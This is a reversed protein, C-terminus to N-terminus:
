NTKQKEGGIQELYPLVPKERPPADVKFPALADLTVVWPSVTTAFSKGLFPGLPQYEWKQIDRASWDNVLVMGFVHDEVQGTTVPQGPENARGVFFGMELEFDLLRSPGFSPMDADDTKTQGCPRHIDVGSAFVTSARGHYGVPLHLWNAMLANAKGRFMIGVNTAHHKSSYFDTFDGIQVPIVLRTDRLPRMVRASLEASQRLAGDGGEVLLDRLRARVQRWALRGKAIFANLSARDFINEGSVVTGVFLGARHLMALDLAFDGIATCVAPRGDACVMVGFPINHISFDSEASAEVWCRLDTTSAM